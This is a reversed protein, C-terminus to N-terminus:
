IKVWKQGLPNSNLSVFDQQDVHFFFIQFSIVPIEFRRELITFYIDVHDFEM